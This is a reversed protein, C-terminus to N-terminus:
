INNKIIPIIQKRLLLKKLESKNNTFTIGFSEELLLQAARDQTLFISLGRQIDAINLFVYSLLHDSKLSDLINLIKNVNKDILTTSNSVELQAMGFKINDIEFEKFDSVLAEELNEEVRKTKVNFMDLIYEKPIQIQSELWKIANIDRETTITGKLNLTNSFIAGYLLLGSNNGIPIGTKVYKEVILTAAAGVPEIQIQAKPFQSTDYFERHDIVEIVDHANIIQPMGKMDSADCLIFEDFRDEVNFKIDTINFRDLVYQVEIHPKGYIVAEVEKNHLLLLKQYAYICAVGDLDPNIKATLLIKSM